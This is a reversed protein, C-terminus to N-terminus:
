PTSPGNPPMCSHAAAAAAKPSQATAARSPYFSNSYGTDEMRGLLCPMGADHQSGISMNLREPMSSCRPLLMGDDRDALAARAALRDARRG